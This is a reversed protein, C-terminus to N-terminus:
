KGREYIAYCKVDVAKRTKYTQLVFPVKLYLIQPNQKKLRMMLGNADAEREIYFFHTFYWRKGYRTITGPLEGVDSFRDM